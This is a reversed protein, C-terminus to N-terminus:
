ILNAIPGFSMLNASACRAAAADGIPRRCLGGECLSASLGTDASSPLQIMRLFSATDASSSATDASSAIKVNNDDRFENKTVGYVKDRASEVWRGLLGEQLETSGATELRRRVAEFKAEAAGLAALEAKM